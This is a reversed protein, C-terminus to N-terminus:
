EAMTANAAPSTPTIATASPLDPASVPTTTDAVVIGAAAAIPTFVASL